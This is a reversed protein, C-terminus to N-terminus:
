SPVCATMKVISFKGGGVNSSGAPQCGLAGLHQIVGQRQPCGEPDLASRLGNGRHYKAWPFGVMTIGLLAARCDVMDADVLNSDLAWNCRRFSSTSDVAEAGQRGRTRSPGPDPYNLVTYRPDHLAVASRIHEIRIARRRLRRNDWGVRSAVAACANLVNRFILHDAGDLVNYLYGMGLLAVKYLLAGLYACSLHAVLPLAKWLLTANEPSHRGAPVPRWPKNIADESVSSPRRQNGICAILLNFWVCFLVVPVRSLTYLFGPTHTSNANLTPGGIFNFLGASAM